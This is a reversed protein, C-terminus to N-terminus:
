PICDQNFGLENKAKLTEDKKTLSHDPFEVLQGSIIGEVEEVSRDMVGGDLEKSPVIIVKKVSRSGSDM